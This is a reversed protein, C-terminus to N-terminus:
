ASARAARKKAAPAQALNAEARQIRVEDVSRKARARKVAAIASGAAGITAAGERWAEDYIRRVKAEPVFLIQATHEIDMDIAHADCADSWGLGDKGHGFGALQIQDIANADYGASEDELKFRAIIEKHSLM